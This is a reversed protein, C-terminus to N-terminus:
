LFTILSILAILGLVSAIVFFKKSKLIQDLNKDHPTLSSLDDLNSIFGKNRGIRLFKNKRHNFIEDSTMTNFYDLNKSISEKINKQKNDEPM